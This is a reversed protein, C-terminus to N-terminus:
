ALEFALSPIIVMERLKLAMLTIQRGFETLYYRYRQNVRKVLGHERLRRILRTVQGTNKNTLHSRLDRNSFGSIVFESRILLRFFSADEEALLNFGKYRRGKDDQQTESLRNLKDVGVDPTEIDSIFKLYRKNVAQLTEAL